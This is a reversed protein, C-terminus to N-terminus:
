GQDGETVLPPLRYTEQCATCQFDETDGQRGASLLRGGCRCVYGVLRAPNGVALGHDPVDRTVVAGAGVLAFTGITVDPLVVSGAGLSAGRKILIRGVVWDADTKLSGDPNIARPLHDNTLIVGPGVFVGDELTAGHYISAGNQLKCHDGIQVNFDVYVGKGLICRRGLRARERVQVQHWIQTGDGIQAQDSVEATPHIKIM